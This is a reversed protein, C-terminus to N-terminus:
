EHGLTLKLLLIGLNKVSTKFGGLQCIGWDSVLMASCIILFLNIQRIGVLYATNVVLLHAAPPLDFM